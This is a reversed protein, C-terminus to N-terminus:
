PPAGLTALDDLVHTIHHNIAVNKWRTQNSPSANKKACKFIYDDGASYTGGMFAGSSLLAACHEHM